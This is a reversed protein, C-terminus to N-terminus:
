KSGIKLSAAYMSRRILEHRVSKAFTGEPLGLQRCVESLSFKEGTFRDAYAVVQETMDVASLMGSAVAASPMTRLLSDRISGAFTEAQPDMTFPNM